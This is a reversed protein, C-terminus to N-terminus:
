ARSRKASPGSSHSDNTTLNSRVGQRLTPTLVGVRRAVGAPGGDFQEGGRRCKRGRRRMADARRENVLEAPDYHVYGTVNTAFHTLLSSFNNFYDYIFAIRTRAELQRLWFVTTDGAVPAAPDSDVAFIAPMSRPLVGSLTQLTVQDDHDLAVYM